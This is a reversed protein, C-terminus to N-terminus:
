LPRPLRKSAILVPIPNLSFWGDQLTKCNLSGM